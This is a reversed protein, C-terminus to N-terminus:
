AFIMLLGLLLVVAGMIGRLRKSAKEYRPNKLWSDVLSYSTGALVMLISHGLAYLIMLFIGWFPGHESQAVMALLAVMVPAACHSAFVGGLAGTLFAGAYGKGLFRQQQCEECCEGHSHDHHAGHGKGHSHQKPFIRIIEWMQLAMLIMLIGMLFSWWHGVEHMFHGIVSAISGFVGFTVAMGLAMTLSLKLAKRPEKSSTGEVYALVMPVASLSCPTFSTVIGAALSLVPAFWLNQQMLGALLEIISDMWADM